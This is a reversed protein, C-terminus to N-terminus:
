AVSIYTHLKMTDTKRLVTKLTISYVCLYTPFYHSRNKKRKLNTPLTLFKLFFKLFWWRLFYILIRKSNRFFFLFIKKDFMNLHCTMNFIILNLSVSNSNNYILFMLVYLFFNYLCKKFMHKLKYGQSSHNIFTEYFDSIDLQSIPQNPM